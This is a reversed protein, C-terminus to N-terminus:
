IEKSPGCSARAFVTPPVCLISRLLSIALMNINEYKDVNEFSSCIRVFPQCMAYSESTGSALSKVLSFIKSIVYEDDM